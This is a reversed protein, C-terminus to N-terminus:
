AGERLAVQPDIPEGRRGEGNKILESLLYRRAKATATRPLEDPAIRLPDTLGPIGASAARWTEDTLSTGERMCIVPVPRADGDRVVVVETADPIRDLLRDEIQLCSDVGDIRDALRDLVELQRWRGRRGWDGTDFWKGHRRQFYKEPTGVFSLARARSKAQITGPQSQRWRRRGTKPDAIRVRAGPVTWGIGRSELRCNISRRTFAAVTLVQTETTGYCDIWVPLTRNSADLLRRVTRPHIADFTNFFIRVSSFPRAPHNTLREWRMFDNPHAEVITPRYRNFLEVVTEDTPHGIGLVPTGRSFAAMQQAAAAIHFHSIANAYLEDHSHAFPFISETLASFTVSTASTEVLKAMGTTASTHTIMMPEDDKVPNPSPVPGGWLDAIPTAGDVDGIGIATCSLSRFRAADLGAYHATPPDTIVLRPQLRDLLVSLLDSPLGPTLPAPIAGIRAAAWALAQIDYSPSKVIAVRDGKKVGATTLVASIQEVLRAYDIYDLEVRQQPDWAFPQDLYIPIDHGFKDAALDAMLGVNVPKLLSVRRPQFQGRLLKWPTTHRTSPVITSRAPQDLRM